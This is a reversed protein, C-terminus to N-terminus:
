VPIGKGADDIRRRTFRYPANGANDNRQPARRHPSVASRHDAVGANGYGVPRHEAQLFFRLWAFNLTAQTAHRQTAGRSYGHAAMTVDGANPQTALRRAEVRLVAYGANPLPPVRTM